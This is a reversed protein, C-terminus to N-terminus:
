DKWVLEREFARLEDTWAGAAISAELAPLIQDLEPRDDPAIALTKVYWDRASVLDNEFTLALTGMNQHADGYAIPLDPPPAEGRAEIAALQERGLELAKLFRQRAANPDTRLYYAMVLGTDNVVRVDEPALEAAVLYAEYSRQMLRQARERLQTAEARAAEAAEASPAKQAEARLRRATRELLVAADRDFLGSNNALDADGPRRNHLMEGLAAAKLQADLDERREAYKRAVSALGVLASALRGEYQRDLGGERLEETSWFAEEAGVLDGGWFRCWGIGVRSLVEWSSCADAYTPALERCRRFDREARHFEDAALDGREYGELARLFRESAGYWWVLAVEPEAAQLAEYRAIVADRQAQLAATTARRHAEREAETADDGPAEAAGGAAEYASWYAAARLETVLDNHLAEQDPALALAADIRTLADARRGEWRYLNALERLPAPDTPVAAALRGLASEAEAFRQAADPAEASKAARYAGFAADALAQEPPFELELGARRGPAGDLWALASRALDLAAASDNSRYAARSARLAAEVGYGAAAAAEYGRHADAYLDGAQPAGGEAARFAAHARLFLAGADRPRLELAEDFPLLADIPRGTDLASRGAALAAEFALGDVLKRARRFDGSRLAAVAEEVDARQPTEPREDAAGGREVGGPGSGTSAPGEGAVDSACAAILPLLLSAAFPM